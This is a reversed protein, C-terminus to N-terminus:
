RRIWVSAQSVSWQFKRAHERIVFPLDLVRDLGFDPALAESVGDLTARGGSCLWREKPTFSELWTCPTVVIACGGPLVLDALRKLFRGPDRLRCLLNAALVADFGGLDARLDTADGVEFAVRGPEIGDPRRAVTPTTRGGEEIMEFALEGAAQIARAVRIFRKSFDIGIVERFFRALEFSSRGVACGVDLARQGGGGSLFRAPLCETVCRAPFGVADRPGTPWPMQEDTSGYHFLLYEALSRDSEYTAAGRRAPESPEPENGM